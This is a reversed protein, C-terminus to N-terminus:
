ILMVLGSEKGIVLYKQFICFKRVVRKEGLRIEREKWKPELIIPYENTTKDSM